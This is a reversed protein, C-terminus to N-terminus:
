ASSFPYRKECACCCRPGCSPPGSSLAALSSGSFQCLADTGFGKGEMVMAAEHAPWTLFGFPAFVLGFLQGSPQSWLPKLVGTWIAMGGATWLLVLVVYWTVVRRSYRAFAARSNQVQDESLRIGV